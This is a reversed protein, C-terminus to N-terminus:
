GKKFFHSEELGLSYRDELDLAQQIYVTQEVSGNIEISFPFVEYLYDQFNNSDCYFDCDGRAFNIFLGKERLIRHTSEKVNWAQVEPHMHNVYVIDFRDNLEAPLGEWCGRYIKIGFDKQAISCLDPALEVLPVKDILEYKFGKRAFYMAPFLGTTHSGIELIRQNNECSKNQLIQNIVYVPINYTRLFGRFLPLDKNLYSKSLNNPDLGYTQCVNDIFDHYETITELYGEKSFGYERSESALSETSM